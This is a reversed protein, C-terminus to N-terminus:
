WGRVRVRLGYIVSRSYKYKIQITPALMKELLCKVCNVCSAHIDWCTACLARTRVNRQKPLGKSMGRVSEFARTRLLGGARRLLHRRARFIIVRCSMDNPLLFLGTLRMNYHSFSNKAKSCPKGTNRSIGTTSLKLDSTIVFTDDVRVIDRIRLSTLSAYYLEAHKVQEWARALARTASSAREIDFSGGRHPHILLNLALYRRRLSGYSDGTRAGLVELVSPDGSVLFEIRVFEQVTKTHADTM